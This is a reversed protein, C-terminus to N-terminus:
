MRSRNFDDAGMAEDADAALARSEAPTPPTHEDAVDNADVWAGVTGARVPEPRGDRDFAEALTLALSTFSRSLLRDADARSFLGANRMHPTYGEGNACWWQNHRSSWIVYHQREECVDPNGAHVEDRRAARAHASEARDSESPFSPHM